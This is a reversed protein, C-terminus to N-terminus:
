LNESEEVKKNMRKLSNKKIEEDCCLCVYILIVNIVPIFCFVAVKILELLSESKSVQNIKRYKELLEPYERKMKENTAISTIAVM